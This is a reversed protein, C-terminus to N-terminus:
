RSASLGLWSLAAFAVFAIWNPWIPVSMPGWGTEVTIPWGVITRMLQLAAVIAFIVAALRSYSQATM